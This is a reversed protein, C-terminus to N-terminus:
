LRTDLEHLREGKKNLAALDHVISTLEKWPTNEQHHVLMAFLKEREQVPLSDIYALIEDATSLRRAM